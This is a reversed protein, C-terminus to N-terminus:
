KVGQKTKTYISILEDLSKTELEKKAQDDEKAKDEKEDALFSAYRTLTLADQPPLQGAKSVKEILKLDKDIIRLIKQLLKEPSKKRM